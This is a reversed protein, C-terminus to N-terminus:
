ESGQPIGLAIRTRYPGAIGGRVRKHRLGLGYGGGSVDIFRHSDPFVQDGGVVGAVPAGSVIQM